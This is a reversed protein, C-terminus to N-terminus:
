CARASAGAGSPHHVALALEPTRDDIYGYGPDIRSFLRLWAAGIPDSAGAPMAILGHDHARGWGEVYKALEPRTIISRDPPPLHPPFYIAQYLMEWLFPEDAKTSPRVIIDPLTTAPM